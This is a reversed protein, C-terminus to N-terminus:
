PHPHPFYYGRGHNYPSYGPRRFYPTYPRGTGPYPTYGRGGPYPTPTTPTATYGGGGSYPAYGGPYPVSEGYLVKRGLKHDAAVLNSFVILSLLIALFSVFSSMM